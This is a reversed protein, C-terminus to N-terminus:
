GLQHVAKTEKKLKERVVVLQLYKERFSALDMDGTLNQSDDIGFTSNFLNVL